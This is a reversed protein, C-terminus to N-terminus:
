EVVGDLPEGAHGNEIDSIRSLMSGFDDMSGM